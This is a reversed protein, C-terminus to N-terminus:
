PEGKLAARAIRGAQCSDCTCGEVPPIAHILIIEELAERLRDREARLAALEDQLDDYEKMAQEHGFACDQLDMHMGM